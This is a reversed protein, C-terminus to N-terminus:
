KLGCCTNSKVQVVHREFKVAQVFVQMWQLQEVNNKVKHHLNADPNDELPCGFSKELFVPSREKSCQMTLYLKRTVKAKHESGAPIMGPDAVFTRFCQTWFFLVPLILDTNLIFDKLLNTWDLFVCFSCCCPLSFSISNQFLVTM